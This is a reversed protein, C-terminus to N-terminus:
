RRTELEALRKEIADLREDVEAVAYRGLVSEGNVAQRLNDIRKSMSDIKSHVGEIDQHVEAFQRKMDTRIERPLVLIMNDPEAM